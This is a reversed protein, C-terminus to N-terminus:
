IFTSWGFGTLCAMSPFASRKRCKILSSSSIVSFTNVAYFGWFARILALVPLALCSRVLLMFAASFPLYLALLPFISLYCM